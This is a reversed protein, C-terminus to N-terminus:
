WVLLCEGPRMRTRGRSECEEDDDEGNKRQDSGFDTTEIGDSSRARGCIQPRELTEVRANEGWGLSGEGDIHFSSLVDVLDSTMRRLGLGNHESTSDPVTTLSRQSWRPSEVLELMSPLRTATVLTLPFQPSPLLLFPNPENPGAHTPNITPSPPCPPHLTPTASYTHSRPNLSEASTPASPSHLAITSPTASPNTFAPHPATSLSEDSSAEIPPLVGLEDISRLRLDPGVGFPHPNTSFKRTSFISEANSARRTLGRGAFNRTAPPPNYISAITSHRNTRGISRRGKLFTPMHLQISSPRSRSTFPNPAPSYGSFGQWRFPDYEHGADANPAPTPTRTLACDTGWDPSDARTPRSYVSQSLVTCPRNQYTQRHHFTSPGGFTEFVDLSGNDFRLWGDWPSRNSARISTNCRVKCIRIPM